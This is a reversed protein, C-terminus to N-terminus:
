LPLWALLATVFRSSVLATLLGRASLAGMWTAAALQRVYLVLPMPLSAIWGVLLHALYADAGLLVTALTNEVLHRVKVCGCLSIQHRRWESTPQFPRDIVGQPSAM